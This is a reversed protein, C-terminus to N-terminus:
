MTGLIHSVQLFNNEVGVRLMVYSISVIHSDTLININGHMQTLNEISSETCTACLLGLLLKLFGSFITQIYIYLM